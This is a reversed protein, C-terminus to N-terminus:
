VQGPTCARTTISAITELLVKAFAVTRSKIKKRAYEGLAFLASSVNSIKLFDASRETESM